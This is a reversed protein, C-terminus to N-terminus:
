FWPLVKVKQILISTRLITKLDNIKLYVHPNDETKTLCVDYFNPIFIYFRKKKMFSMMIAYFQINLKKIYFVFINIFM